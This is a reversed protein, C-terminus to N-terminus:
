PATKGRSFGSSFLGKIPFGWVPLKTVPLKLWASAVHEDDARWVNTLITKTKAIARRREGFNEDFARWANTLLGHVLLDHKLLRTKTLAM